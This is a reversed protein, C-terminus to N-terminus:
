EEEKHRTPSETEKSKKIKKILNEKIEKALGKSWGSNDQECIRHLEMLDGESFKITASVEHINGYRGKHLKHKFKTQM